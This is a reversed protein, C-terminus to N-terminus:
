ESKEVRKILYATNPNKKREKEIKKKLSSACNEFDSDRPIMYGNTDYNVSVYSNMSHAYNGNEDFLFPKYGLIENLANCLLMPQNQLEDYNYGLKYFLQGVVIQMKLNDSISVKSIDYENTFTQMKPLEEFVLAVPDKCYLGILSGYTDKDEAIAAVYYKLAPNYSGYKTGNEATHDYNKSELKFITPNSTKSLITGLKDNVAYGYVSNTKNKKDENGLLIDVLASDTACYYYYFTNTNIAYGLRDLAYRLQETKKVFLYNSGPLKVWEIPLYIGMFLSYREKDRPYGPNNGNLYFCNGQFAWAGSKTRRYTYTDYLIDKETPENSMIDNAKYVKSFTFIKDAIDNVNVFGFFKMCRQYDDSARSNPLTLVSVGKIVEEYSYLNVFVKGIYDNITLTSLSLEQKQKTTLDTISPISLVLNSTDSEASISITYEDGCYFNSLSNSMRLNKEAQGLTNGNVDCIKIIFNYDVRPFIAQVADNLGWNKSDPQNEYATLINRYIEERRMDKICAVKVNIDFTEKEYNIKGMQINPDYVIYYPPNKQFTDTVEEILKKFDNRLQILNRAQTGFDGAAISKSSEAAAKIARELNDDSAAAQIFYSFAEINSGKQQAITGQAMLKQAEISSKGEVSEVALLSKRGEETLAVNLQILLDAVADKLAKGSELDAFSCNPNSFAAISVNKEKDNIRVSLSYSSSKGVISVLLVNKAVAFNGAEVAEDESFNAGEDRKQAEAIRKANHTDVITIASYKAIDDSITNVIFEPLWASESGINSLEPSEVQIKLDKRGDGQFYEGSFVPAMFCILCLFAFKVKM